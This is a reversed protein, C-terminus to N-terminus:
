RQVTFTQSASYAYVQGQYTDQRRKFAYAKRSFLVKTSMDPAHVACFSFYRQAAKAHAVKAVYIGRMRVKRAAATAPQSASISQEVQMETLSVDELLVILTDTIATDESILVQSHSVFSMFLVALFTFRM